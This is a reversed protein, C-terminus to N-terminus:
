PKTLSPFLERRIDPIAEAYVLLLRDDITNSCVIKGKRALLALGGLCSDAGPEASYEPLFRENFTIKCPVDRDKFVKVENKLMTKYEEIAPQIVAEILDKDSKRCKVLVEPEMMKILTQVLLKHLFDKYKGKDHSIVDAKKKAEAYLNEVLENVMRM